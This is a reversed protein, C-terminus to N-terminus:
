LTRAMSQILILLFWMAMFSLDFPGSQPIIRRLPTLFVSMISDIFERFRNTPPLFWPLVVYVIMVAEMVNVFTNLFVGFFSNM